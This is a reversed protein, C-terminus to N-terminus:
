ALGTGCHSCFSEDAPVVQRCHPCLPVRGTPAPAAASPPGGVAGAMSHMSSTAVREARDAALTHAAVLERGRQEGAGIAALTVQQQNQLVQQILQNTQAAQADLRAEAQTRVRELEAATHGKADAEARAALARAAAEPSKLALIQEATLGHHARVAEAEAQQRIREREQAVREKEIEHARLRAAEEAAMRRTEKEREFARARDAEEQERLQRDLEMQQRLKDMKAATDRMSAHHADDAATRAAVSAMEANTKAGALAEARTAAGRLAAVRVDHEVNKISEGRQSDALRAGHAAASLESRHVEATTAQAIEAQQALQAVHAAGERRLNALNAEHAATAVREGRAIGAEARTTADDHLAESRNEHENTAEAIARAEDLGRAHEQVRREREAQLRRQERQWEREQAELARDKITDQLAANDADVALWERGVAYEARARELALRADLLWGHGLERADLVSVAFGEVGLARAGEACREALQQQLTGLAGRVHARRTEEDVGPLLGMVAGKARDLMGPGEVVSAFDVGALAKELAGRVLRFLKPALAQGELASGRISVEVEVRKGDRTVLVPEAAGSASPRTEGRATGCRGCFAAGERIAAHCRACLASAAPAAQPEAGLVKDLVFLRGKEALTVRLDVGYLESLNDQLEQELMAQAADLDPPGDVPWNRMHRDLIEQVEPRFRDHFAQADLSEAGHLGHELFRQLAEGRDRPLWAEALLDFLVRDPRGPRRHELSFKLPVPRVDLLVVDGVSSRGGLTAKVSEWWSGDVVAGAELVREVGSAGAIAAYSGHPVRWGNALFSTLLESERVRKVLMEAPREWDVIRGFGGREPQAPALAPTAAPAAM